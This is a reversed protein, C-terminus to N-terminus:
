SGSGAVVVWATRALIKVDLWLSWNDIYELDMRVWDDFSSIANRGRVQWLCTIGPRFSLKRKHWNEYQGIEWSGAPRPGVLSMDGILVSWLQPLENLSFKRLFRGFPTVRPDHKIKFVPGSMENLHMLEARKTDADGVMTTFKYGTFPRGRYGIVRWRYFVQEKPATIKLAVAIVAFLPSFVVLLAASVIVDVVRKIFLGGADVDWPELFAGPVALPSGAAAPRLDRLSSAIPVLAAPVIHVAVRLYDCSQVVAALWPAPANPLAIVMLDIPTHVLVSAVDDIKGLPQLGAATATTEQPTFFGVPRYPSAADGLRVSAMVREIDERDGLFAVARAYRGSAQRRAHYVWLATRYATLGFASLGTNVFLFLRSWQTQHLAFAVLTMVSLSFFPAALAAGFFQTRSIRAMPRYGGLMEIALLTTPVTILPVFLASGLAGASTLRGGPFQIWAFTELRWPGGPAFLPQFLPTVLAALGVAAIITACDIAALFWRPLSSELHADRNM